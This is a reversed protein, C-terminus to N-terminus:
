KKNKITEALKEEAEKLSSAEVTVGENMFHYSRKKTPKAEVTTEEVKTDTALMKNDYDKKM